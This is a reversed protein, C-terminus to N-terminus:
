WGGKGEVGEAMNRRWEEDSLGWWVGEAGVGVLGGKVFGWGRGKFGGRSVDAVVFCCLIM